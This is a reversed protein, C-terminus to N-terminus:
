LEDNIYLKWKANYIGKESVSPNLIYRTAGKPKIDNPIGFVELVYGLRRYVAESGARQAFDLLKQVNLDRIFTSISNIRTNRPLYLLDILIKELEGIFIYFEGHKIKKFGFMMRPDIKILHINAGGFNIDHHKKSSVVDITNIEQELYGHLYLGATFSIYSPFVLQSAIDFPDNSLSYKGREVKILLGRKIMRMAYQLTTMRNVSSFRSLENTSIIANGQKLVMEKLTTINM